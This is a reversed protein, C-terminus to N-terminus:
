ILEFKTYRLLNFLCRDLQLGARKSISMNLETPGALYLAPEVISQIEDEDKLELAIVFAVAAWASIHNEPHLKVCTSNM